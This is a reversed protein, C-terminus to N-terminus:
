SCKRKNNQFLSNEKNKWRGSHLKIFEKKNWRWKEEIDGKKSMTLGSADVVLMPEDKFNTDEVCAKIKLTRRRTQTFHMEEIKVYESLQYDV